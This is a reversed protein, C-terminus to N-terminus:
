KKDLLKIATFIFQNRCCFILSLFIYQANSMTKKIFLLLIISLSANEYRSITRENTRKRNRVKLLRKPFVTPYLKQALKQFDLKHKSKSGNQIRISYRTSWFKIHGHGKWLSSWFTVRLTLPIPSAYWLTLLLAVLSTIPTM